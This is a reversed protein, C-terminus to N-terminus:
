AAGVFEHGWLKPTAYRKVQWQADDVLLGGWGYEIAFGSPTKMYFSTMHDNSHQGLTLELPMKRSRVFDYARGVDELANVELMLHHINGSKMGYCENLFALTHHRPNCHLFIADADDWAVYDSLAFGMAEQYFRAAARIDKSVMVVHGLGLPGCNFGSMSRSPRFPVEDMLAGFYVEIPFGDPDRFRFMAEVMRERLEQSTADTTAISRSSVAKRVSELMELSPVEMGIATVADTAARRMAVRHHTDDFRLRLEDRSAGQDRVETGLVNIALDRWADLNWVDLRVYGLQTISM